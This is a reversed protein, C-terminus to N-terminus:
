KIGLERKIEDWLEIYALSAKSRKSYSHLPACKVGMREVDSSYPIFNKLFNNKIHRYEEITERHIKKRLDVLSFFPRLKMIDLKTDEFYRVIQRYTRLSLTTPIMPLLVTDSANFINESLLSFAPPSDIFILDYSGSLEKILMKLRKKSKKMDDLILDLNRESFDAPLVDINEYNASKIFDDLSHKGDVLKKAGGKIKPKVDYYYTASAQPDLDWLLVRKGETSALYSFNVTAATKGVGGKSNFIAITKM